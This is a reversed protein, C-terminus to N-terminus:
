VYFPAHSAVSLMSTEQVWGGERVDTEQRSRKGYRGERGRKEYSAWQYNEDDIVGLQGTSAEATDIPRMCPDPLGDGYQAVGNPQMVRCIGDAAILPKLRRVLSLRSSLSRRRPLGNKAANTTSEHGV